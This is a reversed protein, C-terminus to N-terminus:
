VGISDSRLTPVAAAAVAAAAAAAAARAVTYSHEQRSQTNPGGGSVAAAAAVSTTTTIAGVSFDIPTYPRAQDHSVLEEMLETDEQGCSVKVNAIEVAEHADASSM